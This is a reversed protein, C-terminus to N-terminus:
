DQSSSPAKANRIVRGMRSGGGSNHDTRMRPSPPAISRQGTQRQPMPLAGPMQQRRVRPRQEDGDPAVGEGRPFVGGINRWPPRRDERDADHGGDHDGDHHSGHDGGAHGYGHPRSRYWWLSGYGYPYGYYGYSSGYVFRGYRDYYYGPAYSGFGYSGYYGFPDDYYRYEIRPQGYYYDGGGGGRYSYGTACGALAAAALAALLTNRLMAHDGM